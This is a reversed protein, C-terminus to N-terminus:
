RGGSTPIYSTPYAGAELQAGWIFVSTDLTNTESRPSSASTVIAFNLIGGSSTATATATMICRYWGDGVSQISATAGVGVSGVVGNELDFNAFITGTTYIAAAGFIQIFNNTNKKAYITHTYAVGSTGAGSIGLTKFSSSGNAIFTDANQLGSPSISSNSSITTNQKNWSTDFQESYLALNTRQPEVLVSPCGGLSYDIRPINLRTETRKYPLANTGEVLQAGWLYVGSTGDGTYSNNGSNDLINFAVYPNAKTPTNTVSCRYWGGGVNEVNASIVKTQTYIISENLLDFGASLQSDNDFTISFKTRGNPKVYVSTTTVSNAIYISSTSGKYHKGLAVSETLLDATLTGNPATAANATTTSNAFWNWFANSFDESYSFLNYPVLEVLGDQNVRTATTARTVTMPSAVFNTPDYYVNLGYLNGEDYAPASPLIFSPNTM